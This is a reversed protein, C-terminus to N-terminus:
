RLVTETVTVTDHQLPRRAAAAGATTTASDQWAARARPCELQLAQTPPLREAPGPRRSGGAARLRSSALRAPSLLCSTSGMPFAAQRAGGSVRLRAAGKVPGRQKGRRRGRSGAGGGAGSNRAPRPDRPGSELRGAHHPRGPPARRVRRGPERGPIRATPRLSAAFPQSASDERGGTATGPLGRCCGGLLWVACPRRRAPAPAAGTAASVVGIPASAGVTRGAAARLTHGARRLGDGGGGRLVSPGCAGGAM